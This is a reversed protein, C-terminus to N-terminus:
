DKYAMLVTATQIASLKVHQSSTASKLTKMLFKGTQRKIKADNLNKAVANIVDMVNLLQQEQHKKKEQSQSQLKKLTFLLKQCDRLSNVTTFNCLIKCLNNHTTIPLKSPNLFTDMLFKQDFLKLHSQQLNELELNEKQKVFDIVVKNFEEKKPKGMVKWWKLYNIDIKISHKSELIAASSEKLMNKRNITVQQFTSTFLITLMHFYNPDVLVKHKKTTALILSVNCLIENRNLKPNRWTLDVFKMFTYMMMTEYSSEQRLPDALKKDSKFVIEYSKKGLEKDNVTSKNLLKLFTKVVVTMVLTSKFHDVPTEIGNDYGIVKLMFNHGDLTFFHHLLQQKERLKLRDSALLYYFMNCFIEHISPNENRKLAFEILPLFRDVIMSRLLKHESTLQEINTSEPIMNLVNQLIKSVRLMFIVDSQYDRSNTKLKKLIEFLKQDCHKIDGANKPPNLIM